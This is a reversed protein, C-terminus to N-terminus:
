EDNNCQCKQATQKRGCNRCYVIEMCEFFEVREPESMLAVAFPATAKISSAIAATLVEFEFTQESM